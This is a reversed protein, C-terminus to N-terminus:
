ITVYGVSLYAGISTVQWIDGLPQHSALQPPPDFSMTLTLDLDIVNIHLLVTVVTVGEQGSDGSSISNSFIGLKPNVASYYQSPESYDRVLYM